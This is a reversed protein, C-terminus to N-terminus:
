VESSLYLSNKGTSLWNSCLKTILLAFNISPLALKFKPLGLSCQQPLNLGIAKMEEFIREKTIEQLKTEEQASALSKQKYSVSTLRGTNLSSTADLSSRLKNLQKSKHENLALKLKSLISIGQDPL